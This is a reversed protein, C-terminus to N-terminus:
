SEPKEIVIDGLEVGEGPGAVFSGRTKRGGADDRTSMDNLRYTAGPILAPFTIRGQSDTVLDAYREPDTRSLYDSDAVPQDLTAETRNMADRGPTVIMSIVWPDRYGALPKGKADVLRAMALGCPELRVAIPGDKATKVSVVATAGLRDKPDYFYVPVEADPALGHLEGHGDRVDGHFRGWYRRWTWPQPQLLLRSFMWAERAPQGDPGLVRVKVTAGRRLAINVEQTETGPKLDCPIFAHAYLRQGGPRGEDIMRQGMEQYVYDESPGLVSLTGPRPRVALQYSGDPGTRTTGGWAGSDDLADPRGMYRLSAGPIPRGTGEEVVKGHIVAGRRLALDVRHELTGKPWAFPFDGTAANLYPQGQPVYAIVTYRVGSIPNAHYYGRADTEYGNLYGPGGQPRTYSLIEVAAHPVPKGTDAYTIRGTLVKAPELAATISQPKDSDETDIVIRQRAYQPDDALLLVRLGRGIGRITFRGEADTTAAQPWAPPTKAYAGGWFHPGEINEPFVEPGRPPHGMGEVAVRVGPIVRGKVDFLRGEIVQEPRLTIDATPRDADIDFGTWGMGYGPALAAADVMHHTASSIRPMDLQFHGSGDCAAQGITVPAGGGPRDDVQKSAGYVMVSANLVPKGTPDLVRGTVTMRGPAPAPADPPRPETRATQARPEGPPEGERSRAFAGSAYYAAGIAVTALLLLSLASAKLKHVLMTRLVEQALAAAPAFLTGGAAAHRVAFSMAARTTSDCLLSSVSARASRPALLAAFATGSLAFGRRTLGHRLRDRARALRSRLTGVPWRLRQAAEDLTLGEFYCLVVPARFSGPLRDIELHLAEAREGDLIARDPTADRGSAEARAVGEEETRRRRDIRGRAKRATRLAVGYLWPGLRDPERISRAQRALVLFVAQFADEAHHHDGLLQRCVGLVMSGHRAVIAAFAAEDAPETCATIRELLERDSLGSASGSEFLSGLQRVLSAAYAM